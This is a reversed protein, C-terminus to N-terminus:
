PFDLTVVERNKLLWITSLHARSKAVLRCDDISSITSFSSCIVDGVGQLNISKPTRGDARSKVFIKESLHNKM